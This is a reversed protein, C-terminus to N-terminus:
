SIGHTVKSIFWRYEMKKRESAACLNSTNQRRLYDLLTSVPVFWGDRESLNVLLSRTVPNIEGNKVFGFGFHTYAICVGGETELHNQNRKSILKNFADVDCANSSSFWFRVYPRAPDYYPMSPNIKLTNIDSFVFSRVYMIHEQAIDGWFHESDPIHGLYVKKDRSTAVKYLARLVPSDLRGLGWYLGEKNNLHNAYSRPYYGMLERFKELARITISRNSSGDRSGHFGIEFGKDRLGLIFSLYEPDSLTQGQYLKARPGKAPFPWVSKTVCINLDSLLKYMPMVSDVTAMDTDDFITFAFKKRGPFLM